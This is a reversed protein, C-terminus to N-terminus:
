GTPWADCTCILNKDGYVNDIRRVYPWYKHVLQHRSPFAAKERSFPHTWSSAVVSPATFPAHALVSDEHRVEGREIEAAYQPFGPKHRLCGRHLVLQISEELFAAVERQDHVLITLQLAQDRKFVNEFLNDAMDMVFM